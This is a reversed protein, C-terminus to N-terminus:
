PRQHLQIEVIQAIIRQGVDQPRKLSVASIRIVPVAERHHRVQGADQLAVRLLPGQHCPRPRDPCDDLDARVLTNVKFVWREVLHNLVHTAPLLKVAPGVFLHRELLFLEDIPVSAQHLSLQELRRGVQHPKM